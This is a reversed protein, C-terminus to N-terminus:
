YKPWIRDAVIWATMLGIGSWFLIGTISKTPHIVEPMEPFEIRHVVTNPGEGAPVLLPSGDEDFGPPAEPTM